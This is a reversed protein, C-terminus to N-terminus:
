QVSWIISPCFSPLIRTCLCRAVTPVSIYREKLFYNQQSESSCTRPNNGSPPLIEASLCMDFEQLPKFLFSGVWGPLTYFIHLHSGGKKIEVCLYSRSGLVFSKLSSFCPAWYVCVCVSVFVCVCDCVCWVRVCCVCVVCLGCFCVVCVYWVCVYWVCVCVCVCWLFVGCVVGCVCV